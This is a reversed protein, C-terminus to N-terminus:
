PSCDSGPLSAAAQRPARSRRPSVLTVTRDARRAHGSEDTAVAGAPERLTGSQLLRGFGLRSLRVNVTRRAGPALSFRAKGYACVNVTGVCAGITMAGCTLRVAAMRKPTVRIVRSAIGIAPSLAAQPDDYFVGHPNGGAPYAFRDVVTGARNDTVAIGAPVTGAGHAVFSLAGDASISVHASAAGSGNITVTRVAKSKTDVLAVQAPAGSLGVVLLRRRATQPGISIRPTLRLADPAGPIALEWSVSHTRLNLVVVKSSSPVSVYATREDPTVVVESPEGGIPIRFKIAGSSGSIVALENTVENTVYITTAGIWIGRARASSSGSPLEAGLTDDETDIVGFKNTGLETFLVLSGDPTAQIHHPRSGVSINELVTRTRTSIVSITNDGENAVFAKRTGPAVIVADPERGVQITAQVAGTGASFAVVSNSSTNSAWVLGGRASTMRSSSASSERVTAVAAIGAALLLAVLVSRRFGGPQGNETV